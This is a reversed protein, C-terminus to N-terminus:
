EAKNKFNIVIDEVITDQSSTKCNFFVLEDGSLVFQSTDIELEAKMQLYKELENHRDRWRAAWEFNQAKVGEIKEKKAYALSQETYEDRLDIYKLECNLVNAAHRIFQLVQKQGFKGHYIMTNLLEVVDNRM